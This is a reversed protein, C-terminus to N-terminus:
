AAVPPNRDTKQTTAEIKVWPLAAECWVELTPELWSRDDLTGAKIFELDPMVQVYSLIPSGCNACFKRLVPQGSEGTDHFTKLTQGEINVSDKPVAVLPSFPAGTQKQCHSCHCIATLIPEAECSYRISGCLCSGSLKSM